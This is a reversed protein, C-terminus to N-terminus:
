KGYFNEPTRYIPVLVSFKRGAGESEKRQFLLEEKSPLHASLWSEYGAEAQRGRGHELAKRVLRGGGHAKGYAIGRKIYNVSNMM